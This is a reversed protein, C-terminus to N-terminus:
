RIPVFGASQILEQGKSTLLINAYTEGAQQEIQNNQKVIVFLNRTIPYNGNRFATINLQNRRGTLCQSISVLPEQYPPIFNNKDRGIPVSKITCQEVIEPASAYFIGGPIQKLLQIAQTTNGVNKVNRAFPQKDLVNEQFFDSTGGNQRSLPIITLNPGGVRRWNTIKGTYIDKLQSVTLGSINLNHNVAIAIGDIAVAVEKLTFGKQQAQQHEEPKVSRSSESFALQNDILMAIGKQSNPKGDVPQTYRLRFNPLLKPIVLNLQQRIPVWTSSGGHNFQGAPVSPIQSFEKEAAVLFNPNASITNTTKVNPNGNLATQNLWHMVGLTGAIAVLVTSGIIGGWM